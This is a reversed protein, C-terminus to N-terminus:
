AGFAQVEGRENIALIPLESQYLVDIGSLCPCPGLGKIVGDVARLIKDIDYRISSHVAVMAHNERPPLPQPNLSVAGAPDVVFNRENQLLCNAGSFCRTCGLQEAIGVLSKKLADANYAVKAPLSIRMTGRARIAPDTATPMLKRRALVHTDNM